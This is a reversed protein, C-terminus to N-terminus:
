RGISRTPDSYIVLLQNTSPYDTVEVDAAGARYKRVNPDASATGKGWKAEFTAFLEARTSPVYQLKFSVSDVPDDVVGADLGVFDGYEASKPLKALERNVDAKPRGFNTPPFFRLDPGEGLLQKLPIYRDISLTTADSSLKARLGAEPDFWYTKTMGVAAVGQGWAKVISAESQPVFALSIRDIKGDQDIHVSYELGPATSPVPYEAAHPALKADSAKTGITIGLVAPVSVKAGFLSADLPAKSEVNQSGPKSCSVMVVLLVSLTTRAMWSGIYVGVRKM